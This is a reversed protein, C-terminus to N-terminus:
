LDRYIVTQKLQSVKVRPKPQVEISSHDSLVFAPRQIPLEYYDKLNTLIKDLTNPGRTAFNVIQKLNFNSKLRADNLQNLDELVIIGCNHYRLELDILCSTLYDLMISNDEKPPHYVVGAIISSVGRPLRTPCLKVWLVELSNNKDELDEQFPNFGKCVHM